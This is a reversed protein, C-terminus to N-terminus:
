EYSSIPLMRINSSDCTFRTMLQNTREFRRENRRQISLHPGSHRMHVELIFRLAGYHTSRCQDGRRVDQVIYLSQGKEEQYKYIKTINTYLQLIIFKFPTSKYKREVWNGFFNHCKSFTFVSLIYHNSFTM